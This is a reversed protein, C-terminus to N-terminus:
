SVKSTPHPGNYALLDDDIGLDDDLDDLDADGLFTAAIVQRMHFFIAKASALETLSKPKALVRRYLWASEAYLKILQSAANPRVQYAASM